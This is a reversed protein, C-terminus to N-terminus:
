AGALAIILGLAFSIGLLIFGAVSWNYQHKKFQEISDWHRSKWAWENGKVGLVICM